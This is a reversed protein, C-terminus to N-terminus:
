PRHRGPTTLPNQDQRCGPRSGIAMPSEAFEEMEDLARLQLAANQIAEDFVRVSEDPVRGEAAVRLLLLQNLCNNVIDHVTRTAHLRLEM